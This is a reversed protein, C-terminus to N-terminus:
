RRAMEVLVARVARLDAVPQTFAIRHIRQGVRIHMGEGDCGVMSPMVGEPVTIGAVLCYHAIAEGHDANMHELIGREADGDFVNACLTTEPECWHIAGFGGIFRLRRTAIGYFAFDHMRDYAEAEPFFRLYRAAARRAAEGELPAADGLVTVRGATQLDPESRDFVTLSVRADARINRTHQAIGAILIVPHGTADLCYPVVSGFPYGPMAVSQTALVGDYCATLLARAAQGTAASM